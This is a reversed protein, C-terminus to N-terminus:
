HTLLLEVEVGEKLRERLLRAFASKEKDRETPDLLGKLSSGIIVIRERELQVHASFERIAVDRDEYLREVGENLFPLMDKELFNKLSGEVLSDMQSRFDDYFFLRQAFGLVSSAVLAIGIGTLVTGWAESAFLRPGLFMLSGVVFASSYFGVQFRTGRSLDRWFRGLGALVDM